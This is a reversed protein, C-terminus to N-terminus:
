LIPQIAVSIYKPRLLPEYVILSGDKTYIDTEQPNAYMQLNAVAFNSRPLGLAGLNFYANGSIHDITGIPYYKNDPSTGVRNFDTGVYAPVSIGAAAKFPGIVLQGSDTSVINVNYPIAPNKIFSIPSSIFSRVILPNLFNIGTTPTLYNDELEKVLRISCRSGLVATATNDIYSLLKSVHFSAAFTTINENYYKEISQMLSSILQDESVALEVVKYDVSVTKEIFIYDPTVIRPAITVINYDKLYQEIAQRQASNMVLENVPKIAIFAYGPKTNDGFCRIAEVISGFEKLVFAEYDQATVCRGQAEFVKPAVSRIREIDEKDGGGDSIADAELTITFDFGPVGDVAKFTTIGNGSQGKVSLYEIIVTQGVAPRLGGVYKRLDPQGPILELEGTGFYIETWGDQTERFYYVSDTSGMRAANGALSYEVGNVTIRIYRRDITTDRIFIRATNSWVYQQRIIKGQVVNLNGTYTGATNKSLITDKFTVFEYKASGMTGFFKFGFPIKASNPKTGPQNYTLTVGMDISSGRISAPIYGINQANMVVSGRNRASQLFSEFLAANAFTGQYLAAYALGDILTNMRSGEFDYDAFSASNKFHDILRNKVDAFALASFDTNIM